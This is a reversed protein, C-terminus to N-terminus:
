RNVWLRDDAFDLATTAFHWLCAADAEHETAVHVGIVNAAVWASRTKPDDGPAGRTVAAQWERPDVYRIRASGRGFQARWARAITEAATIADARHVAFRAARVSMREVILLLRAHDTFARVDRTFRLAFAGLMTSRCTIPAPLVGGVSWILGTDRGPDVAMIYATM